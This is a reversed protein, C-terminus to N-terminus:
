GVNQLQTIRIKDDKTPAIWAFKRSFQQLILARLRM